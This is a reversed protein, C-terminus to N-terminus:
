APRRAPRPGIRRHPALPLTRQPAPRTLRPAGVLEGLLSSWRDCCVDREFEGLFATRGRAGMQEASETDAALHTLAEVLGTV